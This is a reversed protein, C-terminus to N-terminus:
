NGYKQVVPLIIRAMQLENSGNLEAGAAYEHGGGGYVAAIKTLDIDDYIRRFSLSGYKFSVNVIYKINFRTYIRKNIIDDKLMDCILSVNEDNRIVIYSIDPRPNNYEDIHDLVVSTNLARQYEKLLNDNIEKIITKETKNFAFALGGKQEQMQFFKSRNIHNFLLNLDKAVYDKNEKWAFTDWNNVHELYSRLWMKKDPYFDAEYGLTARTWERSQDSTCFNYVQLAACNTMDNYYEILPFFQEVKDRFTIESDKHHDIIFIKKLLSSRGGNPDNLKTIFTKYPKYIKDHFEQHKMNLDTIFLYDFKKAGDPDDIDFFKEIKNFDGYSIFEFNFTVKSNNYLKKFALACSVGDLDNHTFVKARITKVNSIIEIDKM